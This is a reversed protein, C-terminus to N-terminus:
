RSTTNTGPTPWNAQAGNNAPATAAPTPWPSAASQGAPQAAPQAPVSATRPKPAAPRVVKPKPAPKAAPAPEAAPAADADLTAQQNGKYMEKPVGEPVGPVGGPFVDKRDGSIKPKSDFFDGTIWDTPDFNSSTGSCASLALGATLIAVTPFVRVRSM